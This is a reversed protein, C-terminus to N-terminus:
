VAPDDTRQLHCTIRMKVILSAPDGQMGSGILAEEMAHSLAPARATDYTDMANVLNVAADAAAGMSGLQNTTPAVVYECQTNSTAQELAARYKTGTRKLKRFQKGLALVTDRCGSHGYNSCQTPVDRELQAIAIWPNCFRAYALLMPQSRDLRQCAAIAALAEPRVADVTKGPANVLEILHTQAREFQHQQDATLSGTFASPGKATPPGFCGGVAIAPLMMLAVSVLRRV